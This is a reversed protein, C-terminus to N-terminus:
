ATLPCGLLLSNAARRSPCSTVYSALAGYRPSVFRRNEGDDSDLSRSPAPRFGHAESAAVRVRGPWLDPWLPRTWHHVRGQPHLGPDGPEGRHASAPDRVDDARL